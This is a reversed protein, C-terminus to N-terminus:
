FEEKGIYIHTGTIIHTYVLIIPVCLITKASEQVYQLVPINELIDWCSESKICEHM